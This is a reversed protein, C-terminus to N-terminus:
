VEFLNKFINVPNQKGTNYQNTESPEHGHIRENAL